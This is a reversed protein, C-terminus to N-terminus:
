YQQTLVLANVNLACHINYSTFDLFSLFDTAEDWAEWSKLTVCLFCFANIFLQSPGPVLSSTLEFTNVMLDGKLHSTAEKLTQKEEELQKALREREELEAATKEKEKSM